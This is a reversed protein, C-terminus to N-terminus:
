LPGTCRYVDTWYRRLAPSAVYKPRLKEWKPIVCRGCIVEAPDVVEVIGVRRANREHRVPVVVGAPHVDLAAVVAEIDRRDDLQRREIVGVIRAPPAPVVKPLAGAM